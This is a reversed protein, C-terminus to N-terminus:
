RAIPTKIRWIKKLFCKIENMPKLVNGPPLIDGMQASKRGEKMKSFGNSGDKEYKILM